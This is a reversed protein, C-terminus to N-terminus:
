VNEGPYCSFSIYWRVLVQCAFPRTNAWCVSSQHYVITYVASLTIFIIPMWCKFLVDQNIFFPRSLIHLAITIYAHRM